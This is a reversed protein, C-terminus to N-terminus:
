STGRRSTRFSRSRRAVADGRPRGVRHCGRARVGARPAAFSARSLRGYGRKLWRVLLADSRSSRRGPLLILSLAPTVTLAVVMSALVALAYSLALPEFFAGSLGELFFVPVVAVVNILTAYVIPSRVELSAELISRRSRSTVAGRERHQRLRRWINEIDIIADDVVVGVAIVLGALVM